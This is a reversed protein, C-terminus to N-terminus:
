DDRGAVAPHLLPSLGRLGDRGAVNDPNGGAHFVPVARGGRRGHRTDRDDLLEVALIDFPHLLDTVVLIRASSQSQRHMSPLWSTAHRLAIEERRLWALLIPRVACCGAFRMRHKRRTWRSAIAHRPTTSSGMGKSSGVASVFCSRDVGRRAQKCVTRSRRTSQQSGKSLNPRPLDKASRVCFLGCPSTLAKFGDPPTQYTHALAQAKKRRAAKEEKSLDPPPATRSVVPDGVAM